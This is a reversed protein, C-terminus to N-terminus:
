AFSEGFIAINVADAIIRACDEVFLDVDKPTVILSFIDDGGKINEPLEGGFADAVITSAYVVLPVGVSVVRCGLSESDFRMRHNSVGSGPTIGADSVQFASAIRETAAGALSDIVVVTDPNVTDKVSKVIDFSEIGTVGLVNPCLSSVKPTDADPNKIHRTIMLRDTVCKGLADATMNPNGLGAVLINDGDILSSIASALEESIRTYQDSRGSKVSDTEITIYKGKPRGLRRSLEDDLTIDTRSLTSTITRKKAGKVLEVAMDTRKFNNM